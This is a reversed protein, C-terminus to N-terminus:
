SFLGMKQLARSPRCEECFRLLEIQAKILEVQQRAPIDNRVDAILSGTIRNYAAETMYPKKCSACKIVDSEFLISPATGILKAIDLMRHISLAAEPCARECLGCAICHGYLFRISGGERKLAGAPCMSTCAGCVTCKTSVSIDAFPHVTEELVTHPRIGTKEAFGRILELLVHRKSSNKLVAPEHKRLPSPTLAESFAVTSKVFDDTGGSSIVSIRSGLGFEKLIADALGLAGESRRICDRCGLLVVGDAGLDFARLIHTESVAAIDPVFLPVVASYKRKKRGATDLLPVCESCAFMLIGPSLPSGRLLQEMESYLDDGVQPLSLPCISSCSGCGLCSVEDFEVRDERRAIAGHECASECLRCGTIGSKGAACGDLSVNLPIEQETKGMNQMIEVAAPMALALTEEETRGAPTVYIGKKVLIQHSVGTRGFGGISLVQGARLSMINGDFGIAHVPCIDICKGCSNCNDDVAFFPCSRIANTKCAELCKGCSICKDLNIPNRTIEIFFDGIRGDISRLRGTYLKVGEPMEHYNIPTGTNTDLIHVNGAKSLYHAVQLAASLEGTILVDKGVDIIRRRATKRHRLAASVLIGAKETAEKRDHVWGCHERLNVFLLEIGQIQTGFVEKKSTCAILARRRGHKISDEKIKSIGDESCLLDRVEIVEGEGPSIRKGLKKFDIGITNGCTCLFIGTRM